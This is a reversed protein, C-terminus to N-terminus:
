SEAPRSPMVMQTQTTKAVLRGTDDRVETELVIVSRGVHLPRSVAEVRGELVGRVFNTKSEVTTTSAGDPLNLFACMAATSDALAMLVGGHLANGATCRSPDWAVSARVEDATADSPDIGLLETFPMAQHMFTRLDSDAVGANQRGPASRAM